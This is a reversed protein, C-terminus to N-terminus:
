PEGRICHPSSWLAETVNDQEEKSNDVNKYGRRTKASQKRWGLSILEDHESGRGSLVIRLSPNVGHEACWARVAASIGSTAHAHYVAETGEYPPDLYCVAPKTKTAHHHLVSNTVVRAWNGCAMRVRCLRDRLASLMGTVTAIRDSYAGSGHEETPMSRDVGTGDNSLRPLQRWMAADVGKGADGLHPIKRWMAADVGKGDNGLHPLKRWMAADVGAKEGKSWGRERDWQWPGVRGCWGSGIWGCAGKVWWAAARTDYYTPDGLRDRLGVEQALLWQHYAELNVEAVPEVVLRAIGEPDAVVARWFNIVFCNLDNITESGTGGAPRALLVALSGAFPEVYTAIDHGLLEWVAEAITAKGGFYPFPAKM